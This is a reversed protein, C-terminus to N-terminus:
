KLGKMSLSVKNKELDVKIVKVKVIDGVSVEDMPNKVFKDSLESIHVLGDNKIGIDVFAGFDTVNRVTGDLVDGVKIDEIKVVDSKVIVHPMDERVDRGPKKLENIIDLLTPEGVNLKTALSNVNVNELKRRLEDEKIDKKDIGLSDILKLAVDYSEPHVMTNDLFNNSEPVKIFGACQVFATKGLKDVKLLDKRNLFKGNEERYKVINTAVINNIGSVYSLLSPTATNADVGVTNVADEVVGTLTSALVKQNVDHQYQGVGISKPDIKVLEAM